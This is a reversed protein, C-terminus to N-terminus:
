YFTSSAERSKSYGMQENLLEVKRLIKEMMRGCVSRTRKGALSGLSM